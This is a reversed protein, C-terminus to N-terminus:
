KESANYCQQKLTIYAVSWEAPIQLSLHFLAGNLDVFKEKLQLMIQVSQLYFLLTSM